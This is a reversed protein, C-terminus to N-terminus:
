CRQIAAELDRRKLYSDVSATGWAARLQALASHASARHSAGDSPLESAQAMVLHGRFLAEWTRKSEFYSVADRAFQEHPERRGSSALAEAISLSGQAADFTLRGRSRKSWAPRPPWDKTTIDRACECSAELCRPM